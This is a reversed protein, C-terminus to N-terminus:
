CINITPTTCSNNITGPIYSLIITSSKGVRHRQSNELFKGWFISWTQNKALDKQWLNQFGDSKQPRVSSANLTPSCRNIPSANKHVVVIMNGDAIYRRCIIGADCNQRHHRYHCITQRPAFSVVHIACSSSISGIFLEIYM